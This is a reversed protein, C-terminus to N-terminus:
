DPVPQPRPAWGAAGPPATQVELDVFGSAHYVRVLWADARGLQLEARYPTPECTWPGPPAGWYLGLQVDPTSDPDHTYEGLRAAFSPAPQVGDVGVTVRGDKRFAWAARALGFHWESM